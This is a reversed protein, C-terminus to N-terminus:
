TSRLTLRECNKAPRIVSIRSGRLKTRYGLWGRFKAALCHSTHGQNAAARVPWRQGCNQRCGIHVHANEGGGRRSKRSQDHVVGIDEDDIEIIIRRGGLREDAPKARTSGADGDEDNGVM